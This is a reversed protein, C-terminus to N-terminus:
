WQAGVGVCGQPAVIWNDSLHCFASRPALYNRIVHILESDAHGDDANPVLTDARQHSNVGAADNNVLGVRTAMQGDLPRRNVVHLELADSEDAVLVLQAAVGAAHVARLWGLRAGDRGSPGNM